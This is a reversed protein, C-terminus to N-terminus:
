KKGNKSRLLKKAKTELRKATKLEAKTLPAVKVGLPTKGGPPGM